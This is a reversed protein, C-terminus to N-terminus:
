RFAVSDGHVSFSTQLSSTAAVVIHCRHPLSSSTAAIHCRRRHPLSSPTANVALPGNLGSVTLPGHVFWLGSFLVFFVFLRLPYLLSPNSGCATRRRVLGVSLFAKGGPWLPECSITDVSAKGSPWVAECCDHGCFAKGSPWM